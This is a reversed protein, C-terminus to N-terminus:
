KKDEEVEAEDETGSGDGHAAAAAAAASAAAAATAQQEAAAAAAADSLLPGLYDIMDKSLKSFPATGISETFFKQMSHLYATQSPSHKAM